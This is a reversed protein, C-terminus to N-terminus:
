QEDPIQANRRAFFPTLVIQVREGEWDITRQDFAPHIVAAPRYSIKVVHACGSLLAGLLVVGTRSLRAARKSSVRLLIM